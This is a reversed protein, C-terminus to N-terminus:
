WVEVGIKTGKLGAGESVSRNIVDGIKSAIGEVKSEKREEQYDM